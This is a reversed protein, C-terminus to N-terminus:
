EIVEDARGLLTLPITLGLTKATKLNLVLEIKAAQQVPLDAPREGKLIRGAYTGVIRYANPVDTGYSMLGGAAVHIRSGYITPLRHRAALAVIQDRRATFLTEGSVVLAGAHEAVATAFAIEIEGPTSSNVVLLRLGLTGAAIRMEMLEAETAAANTPNVLFAVLAADPLLEHLAELRKAIVEVNSITVGTLNGGPRGLSPVLGVAVPDPGIQFVVPITQTAAKLSLAGPTGLVVIVAPRARVLDAALASLRDAQGEAWRSEIVVNRGEVYGAEALGRHFAALYTAYSDPSQALLLGIVPMAAQQALVAVPWAAASALGGIFDRRRM